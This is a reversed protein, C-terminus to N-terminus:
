HFVQFASVHQRSAGRVQQEQGNLTHSILQDDEFVKVEESGGSFSKQTTVKKGNVFRTSVSTGTSSYRLQDCRTVLCVLEGTMGGGFGGFGGISTSFMQMQGGGGGGFGGFPDLASSGGFISSGLLGGGFLGAFPSLPATQFAAV